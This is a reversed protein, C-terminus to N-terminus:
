AGLAVWVAQKRAPLVFLVYMVILHLVAFMSVPHIFLRYNM